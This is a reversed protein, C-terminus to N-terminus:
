PALGRETISLHVTLSLAAIQGGASWELRPARELVGYSPAIDGSGCSCQWVGGGSWLVELGRGSDHVFRACGPELAHTRWGLALQLPVRVHHPARGGFRDQVSLRRGDNQLTITRRVAVPDALRLYGSHGGSFVVCESEERILADLPRADDRLFWLLDPSIFRNVEEGDVQPTNHAATARFRNRDAFSATYVYCGADSVVATGDLEAEFSLIDNHGHGGRGALGVPGCDIFVHARGARLVYVGGSAFAASALPPPPASPPALAGPGFLWLVEEWAAGPVLAGLARDGLVAAVSAIVHRHDALPATGLPLARADDADGWLPASGDSRAYAATFRAAAALRARYAASMKLGAHEAFVGAILFLETVLRHYAASAEFDVGDALLQRGIENELDQWAGVLWDRAAGGFFTGAVVLAACDATFHNGNIDAREVYRAVFAGHQYLCCLFRARFQADQWARTRALARFLWTWVLIRMAPEMAIAWNVTAGVPNAGMLQELVERVEAAYREDGTLLYAQGAPLLWQLRSLEWPMKVDSPRDRQVLPISRFYGADWRDGTKFDTDWAIRAGLATPGSGLLDVEHRGAREARELLLASAGPAVRDLDASQMAASALPWPQAALREWLAELSADGTRHLLQRVDFARARRPQVFRDLEARTEAVARHLVYRPSKGLLRLVRLALESM